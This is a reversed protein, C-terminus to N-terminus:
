SHCYFLFSSSQLSKKIKEAFNIVSAIGRAKLVGGGELSFSTWSWTSDKIFPSESSNDRSNGWTLKAKPEVTGPKESLTGHTYMATFYRLPFVGGILARAPIASSQCNKISRLTFCCKHVLLYRKESFRLVGITIKPSSMLSDIVGIIEFSRQVESDSVGYAIPCNPPLGYNPPM